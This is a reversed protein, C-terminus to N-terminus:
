AYICRSFILHWSREYSFILAIQSLVFCCVRKNGGCHAHLIIFLVSKPSRKGWPSNYKNLLMLTFVFSFLTALFLLNTIYFHYYYYFKLTNLLLFPIALEGLAIDFLKYGGLKLSTVSLVFYTIQM